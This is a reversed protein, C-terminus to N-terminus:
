SATNRHRAANNQLSWWADRWESDNHFTMSTKNFDIYTAPVVFTRRYVFDVFVMADFQDATYKVAPRAHYGASTSLGAKNRLIPFRCSKETVFQRNPKNRTKVQLRNIRGLHDSILDYGNDLLPFAPVMGNRLLEAAVYQVGAAGVAQATVRLQDDRIM